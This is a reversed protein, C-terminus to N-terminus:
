IKPYWTYSCKGCRNVTKNSGIFGTMLSFGRKGTVISASGCKPCRITDSETVTAEFWNVKIKNSDYIEVYAEADALQKVVRRAENEPLDWIITIPTKEILNLAYIKDCNISKQIISAVLDKNWEAKLLKISYLDQNTSTNQQQDEEDIKIIASLREFQGKIMSMEDYTKVQKIISPVSDVLRKADVVGLGTQEIVMKVIDVKNSQNYSILTITYIKNVSNPMDMPINLPFGCHICEKARNSVEKGCEPCKILAM